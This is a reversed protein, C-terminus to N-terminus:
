TFFTSWTTKKKVLVVLDTDGNDPDLIPLLGPTEQMVFVSDHITEIEVARFQAVLGKQNNHITEEKYELNWRETLVSDDKSSTKYSTSHIACLMKDDARFFSLLKSPFMGYPYAPTVDNTKDYQERLRDQDVVEYQIM